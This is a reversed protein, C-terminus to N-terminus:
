TSTPAGDAGSRETESAPPDGPSPDFPVAPVEYVDLLSAAQNVTIAGVETHAAKLDMGKRKHLAVVLIARCTEASNQPNITAWTESTTKEILVAEDLTLDDETVEFGDYNIRWRMSTAQSLIREQMARTIEALYGDHRGDLIEACVKQSDRKDTM